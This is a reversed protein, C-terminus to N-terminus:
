PPPNLNLVARPELGRRRDCCVRQITFQRLLIGRALHRSQPRHDLGRPFLLHHRKRGPRQQRPLLLHLHRDPLRAGPHQACLVRRLRVLRGEISLNIAARPPPPPTAPNTFSVSNSQVEDMVLYATYPANDDCFVGPWTGQNPDTVTVAHQYFITDSGGAGSNDHCYYTFTGTPFNHVAINLASCNSCGYQGGQSASISGTGPLNVTTGGPNRGPKLDGTALRARTNTALKDSGRKRLDCRPHPARIGRPVAEIALRPEQNRTRLRDSSVVRRVTPM